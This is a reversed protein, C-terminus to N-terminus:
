KNIIKISTSPSKVIFMGHPLVSLDADLQGGANARYSKILRGDTGYVSVVQGEKINSFFVHGNLLRPASDNMETSSVGVPIDKVEYNLVDAIPISIEAKTSKVNLMEGVFTIVPQTQLAFKTQMGAQHNIVLSIVTEEAQASLGMLFFLILLELSKM